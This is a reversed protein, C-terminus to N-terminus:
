LSNENYRPEKGYVNSNTPYLIDNTIGLVDNYLLENYKPELIHRQHDAFTQRM